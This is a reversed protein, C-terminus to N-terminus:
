SGTLILDENGKAQRVLRSLTRQILGCFGLDQTVASTARCLDRGTLRWAYYLAMTSVCKSCHTLKKVLNIFCKTLTASPTHKTSFDHFSYKSRKVHM